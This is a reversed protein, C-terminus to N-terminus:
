LGAIVVALVGSVRLQEAILYAAFPTVLSLTFEVPPDDIPKSVRASIWGVALGVAIGGIAVIFFQITAGGLSFTGTALAIVAFRLAILATADNVLSEGELITVIRRPIHLREAIATAAIADPPSVIAGLVFGAALPLGEIFHHALFGVATTTFLVLGIALLLIPRLNAHFDRWSTFLAAPYLLPPLFILFVLEPNLPVRPLGPISAFILGGVVLLIPYPKQLRHALLALAAVAVLLVLVTEVVQM